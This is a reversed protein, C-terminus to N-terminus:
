APQVKGGRGGMPARTRSIAEPLANDDERAARRAAKGGGAGGGVMNDDSDEESDEEDAEDEGDGGGGGGGKKGFPWLMNFINSIGSPEGGAGGGGIGSGGLNPLKFGGAHRPTAKVLGRSTTIFERMSRELYLDTAQEYVLRKLRIVDARAAGDGEEEEGDEAATAEAAGGSGTSAADDGAHAKQKKAKSKKKKKISGGRGGPDLRTGAELLSWDQLGALPHLGGADFTPLNETPLDDGIQLGAKAEHVDPYLVRFRTKFCPRVEKERFGADILDRPVLPVREPLSKEQLMFSGARNVGPWSARHELEFSDAMLLGRSLRLRVRDMLHPMRRVHYFDAGLTRMVDDLKSHPPLANNRFIVRGTLPSPAAAYSSGSSTAAGRSESGGSEAEGGGGGGAKDEGEGGEPADFFMKAIGSFCGTEEKVKASPVGAVQPIEMTTPQVPMPTHVTEVIIAGTLQMLHVVEMVESREYEAAWEANPVFVNEKPLLRYLLNKRVLGSVTVQKRETPDGAVTDLDNLVIFSNDADMSSLQLVWVKGDLAPFVKQNLHKLRNLMNSSQEAVAVASSGFCGCGDDDQRM